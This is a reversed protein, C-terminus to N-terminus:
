RGKALCCEEIRHKALCCEEIKSREKVMGCEKEDSDCSSFRDMNLLSTSSAFILLASLRLSFTKSM